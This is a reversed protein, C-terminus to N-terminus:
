SVGGAWKPKVLSASRKLGSKMAVTTSAAIPSTAGSFDARLALLVDDGQRAELVALPFFGEGVVVDGVVKGMAWGDSFMRMVEVMDGVSLDLEDSHSAVVARLCRRPGAITAGAQLLRAFNELDDIAPPPPLQPVPVPKPRTRSAPEPQPPLTAAPLQLTLAASPQPPFPSVLSVTSTSPLYLVSANDPGPKSFAAAVPPARAAASGGPLYQNHTNPHPSLFLASAPPMSHSIASGAPGFEPFFHSDPQVHSAPRNLAVRDEDGAKSIPVRQAGHHGHQDPVTLNARLPDDGDQLLRQQRKRRMSAFLFWLLAVAVLVGIVIGILAGIALGTPEVGAPVSSQSSDSTSGAIATSSLTSTATMTSRITSGVATTSTADSSTVAASTAAKKPMVLPPADPGVPYRMGTDSCLGASKWNRWDGQSQANCYLATAETKTVDKGGEIFAGNSEPIPGCFGSSSCCQDVLCTSNPNLNGCVPQNLSNRILMGPEPLGEASCKAKAFATPITSVAM